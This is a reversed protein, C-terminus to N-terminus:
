PHVEADSAFQPKSKPIPAAKVPLNETLQLQDSALPKWGTQAGVLQALRDPDNRTAWEAELMHIARIDERIQDHIAKLEEEKDVVRYKLLFMSLCAGVTMLLFLFCTMWYKM